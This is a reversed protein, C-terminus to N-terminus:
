TSKLCTKARVVFALVMAAATKGNFVFPMDDAYQSAYQSSSANSSSNSSLLGRFPVSDGWGLDYESGSLLRM